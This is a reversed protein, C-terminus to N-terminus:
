AGPRLRLSSLRPLFMGVRASYERHAAALPSASFGREERVAARLYNAVGLAVVPLLWATGAAVFGGAFGLLYSTYFPHRVLAYPGRTQLHDPAHPAFALPLPRERNVRAAWAFLALAAALLAGAAAMRLPPVPAALIAAGEAVLVAGTVLSARYRHPGPPRRFVRRVGVLFVASVGALAAFALARLDTM